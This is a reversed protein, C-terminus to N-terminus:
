RCARTSTIGNSQRRRQEQEGDVAVGALGRSLFCLEERSFRIMPQSKLDPLLDDFSRDCFSDLCCTLVSGRSRHQDTM